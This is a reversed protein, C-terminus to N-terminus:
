TISALRKAGPLLVRFNYCTYQVNLKVTKMEGKEKDGEWKRFEIQYTNEFTKVQNIDNLAKVKAAQVKPVGEFDFVTKPDNLAADIAKEDRIKLKEPRKLNRSSSYKHQKWAGFEEDENEMEKELYKAMYRGPDNLFDRERTEHKGTTTNYTKEKSFDDIWVVGYGWHKQLEDKNLPKDTALHLHYTGVKRPDTKESDHIEPVLVFKFERDSCEKLKRRIYTLRTNWVQFVEHRDRQLAEPLIFRLGNVNENLELAFTLTYMFTLRNANILRRVTKKIRRLYKERERQKEESTMPTREKGEECPNEEELRDFLADIEAQIAQEAVSSVYTEIDPKDITYGYRSRYPVGNEDTFRYHEWIDGCPYLVESSSNVATNALLDRCAQQTPDTPEYGVLNLKLRTLEVSRLEQGIPNLPCEVTMDEQYFEKEFVPTEVRSPHLVYVKQCNEEGLLSSQSNKAKVKKDTEVVKGM